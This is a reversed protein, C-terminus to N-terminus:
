YRSTSALRELARGFQDAADRYLDDQNTQGAPISSHPPAPTSPALVTRPATVSARRTGSRNTIFFSPTPHRMLATGFTLGGM